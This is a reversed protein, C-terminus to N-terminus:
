EKDEIYLGFSSSKSKKGCDTKVKSNQDVDKSGQDVHELESVKRLNAESEVDSDPSLIKDGFNLTQPRNHYLEIQSPKPKRFTIKFKYLSNTLTEQLAESAVEMMGFLRRYPLRNPGLLVIAGAITQHIKYPILLISCGAMGTSIIDLDDGLFCCLKNEECAKQMLARLDSENEFLSLGSALSAANNFDPYSLLKSFGTKYIDEASFNSYTVIHRLMIEKYFQNGLKDEEPSLRPKEMGSIRWQLYGAIKKLDVSSLGKEIYLVETHIMGFDTILICLCRNQDIAVLKIDLVFDQDFRPSSLFVACGTAEAIIEAARELYAAVERTPKSLQERLAEAEKEKVKPNNLHTEVYLKYAAETPIRGGSSHQQRLYGAKELNAFYNRITASSLNEFGNERLTNSGVPCGTELYLEVLGLLVLRQREDKDPRKLTMSKLMVMM